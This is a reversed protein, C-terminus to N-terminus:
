QFVEGMIKGIIPLNAVSPWMPKRFCNDIGIGIGLELVSFLSCRKDGVGSVQCEVGKEGAVM